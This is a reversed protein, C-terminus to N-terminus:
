GRGKKGRTKKKKEKTEESPMGAHSRFFMAGKEFRGIVCDKVKIIGPKGKWNYLPSNRYRLPGNLSEAEKKM